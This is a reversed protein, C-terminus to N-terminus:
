YATAEDWEVTVVLAATGAGTDIQSVFIKTAM